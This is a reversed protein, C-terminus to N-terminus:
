EPGETLWFEQIECGGDLWFWYGRCSPITEIGLDGFEWYELM